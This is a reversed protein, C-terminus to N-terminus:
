QPVVAAPVVPLTRGQRLRVDEMKASNPTLEVVLYRKLVIQGESAVLVKDGDLFFGRNPETRSAPKVFGYYKLPVNVAPHAVATTAPRPAAVIPKPRVVPGKLAKAAAAALAPGTEFINRGAAGLQIRQLRALLDLRLTPDINGGTPDIKRFRLVGRDQSSAHRPAETQEPQAAPASAPARAATNGAEGEGGSSNYWFLLGAVVLLVVVILKPNVGVRIGFIKTQAAASM